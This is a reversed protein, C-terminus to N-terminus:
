EARLREIAPELVRALRRDQGIQALREPMLVGDEGVAGVAAEEQGPHGLKRVVLTDLPLGLAEAVAAAVVVGGRPIGYVVADSGSEIDLADALLRGAGRRDAFRLPAPGEM